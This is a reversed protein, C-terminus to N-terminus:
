NTIKRLLSRTSKLVEKALATQNTDKGYIKKISKIFKLQSKVQNELAMKMAMKETFASDYSTEIIINM